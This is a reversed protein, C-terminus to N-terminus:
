LFENQIMDASVVFKLESETEIVVILKYNQLVCIM